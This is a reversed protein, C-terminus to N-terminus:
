LYVAYKFRREALPTSPTIVYANSMPSSLAWIPNVPAVVNTNFLALRQIPQDFNGGTATFTIWDSEVFRQNGAVGQTPWGGSNRAINQRAYGNVGVTPEIMDALTMTLSPPGTVLGVYFTPVDNRFAAALFAQAGAQSINNPIILGDERIFRGQM